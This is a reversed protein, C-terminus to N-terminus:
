SGTEIKGSNEKLAKQIIKLQTEITADIVGNSTEIIVGGEQINNDPVVYVKAESYKDSFIEPVSDRVLEVDKPMVKLTIKEETKNVEKVANKILELISKEDTEIQKNIIKRAIEVSIEMICESVKEFVYEKYNFFESLKERLVKIDANCQNIGENYGEQKAAERISVADEQARSIINRDEIRRYGRRRTGDRREPRQEFDLESILLNLDDNEQKNSKEAKIEPEKKQEEKEEVASDSTKKEVHEETVAKKEDEKIKTGATQEQEIPKNETYKKKIIM